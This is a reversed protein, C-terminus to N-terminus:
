LATDALHRDVLVKQGLYNTLLDFSPAGIARATRAALRDSAGARLATETSDDSWTASPEPLHELGHPNSDVAFIAAPVYLPATCLQVLTALLLQPLAFGPM